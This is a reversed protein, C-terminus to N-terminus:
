LDSGKKGGLRTSSSRRPGSWRLTLKRLDITPAREEGSAIRDPYNSEPVSSTIAATRIAVVIRRRGDACRNVNSCSTDTSFTMQRPPFVVLLKM